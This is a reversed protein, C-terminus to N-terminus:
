HVDWWYRQYVPSQYGASLRTAQATNRLGSALNAAETGAFKLAAEPDNADFTAGNMDCLARLLLEVQPTLHIPFRDATLRGVAEGLVRVPNDDYIRSAHSPRGSATVQLAAWGKEASHM